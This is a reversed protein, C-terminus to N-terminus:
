PMDGEESLRKRIPEIQQRYGEADGFDVFDNYRKHAGAVRRAHKIPCWYFETRSAVERVYAIVGNGYTCYACNLKEIGNLYDLRERDYVFFAGRKVRPIKYVPFCVTQYVTVFLDLLAFPVVLAYIFPATLIVLPNAGAIYRGLAVKFDRHRRRVEDEFQVRGQEIRVKFEARRRAIEADIEAELAHIKEVLVAIHNNV